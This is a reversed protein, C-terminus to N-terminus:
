ILAVSNQKRRDGDEDVSPIETAKNLEGVADCETGVLFDIM